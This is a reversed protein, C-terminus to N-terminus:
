HELSAVVSNKDVRSTFVSFSSFIPIVYTDVFVSFILRYNCLNQSKHDKIKYKPIPSFNRKWIGLSFELFGVETTTVNQLCYCM